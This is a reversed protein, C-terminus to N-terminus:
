CRWNLIYGYKPLSTSVSFVCWWIKYVTSASYHLSICILVDKLYDNFNYTENSPSSGPVHPRATLMYTARLKDCRACDQEPLSTLLSVSLLKSHAVTNMITFPASPLTHIELLPSWWYHLLNMTTSSSTCNITNHGVTIMGSVTRSEANVFTSDAKIM